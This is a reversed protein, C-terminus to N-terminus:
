AAALGSDSRFVRVRNRGAQKAACLAKDAAKVLLEPSSMASDARADSVVVGASVTVKLSERAGAATTVEFPRACVAVRLSEALVAVERVAASPVVIGFEEGGLRCLVDGDRKTKDLRAALEVLLADGVDHGFTDNIIKFRDADVIILGASGASTRAAELAGTLAENFCNRNGAGTLPDTTALVSQNETEDGGTETERRIGVQHQIFAEEAQSLIENTNPPNGIDVRLLTSLERADDIATATLQKVKELSFGFWQFALREVRDPTSSLETLTVAATIEYALTLACVLEIHQTQQLDHHHRIAAVMESPLRWRRGLAAGVEAHDIGFANREVAPLRHHDKATQALIFRYPTPAAAHLAIMGIDQMLAAAFAEDPDCAGSLTTIHRVVAASYLARRWFDVLDFGDEAQKTLDVLSFSLVLSKVTDLGLYAIARPITPCPKSLGYYPSNVTRLIRATLAPDHQVLGAIERLRVNEDRTLDLLQVAITPLSPLRPCDLVQELSLAKM